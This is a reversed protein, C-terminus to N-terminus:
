EAPRAMWAARLAYADALAHFEGIGRKAIANLAAAAAARSVDSSVEGAIERPQVRKMLSRDQAILTELHRWDLKYDYLLEVDGDFSNLFSVVRDSMSIRDSVRSGPIKNFQSVVRKLVLENAGDLHLGTSPLEAYCEGDNEAVLGISVLISTAQFGNFETDFFIRV